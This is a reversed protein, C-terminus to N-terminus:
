VHMNELNGMGSHYIMPKILKHIKQTNCPPRVLLAPDEDGHAGDRQQQRTGWRGCGGGWPM